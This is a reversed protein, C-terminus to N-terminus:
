PGGHRMGGFRFPVWRHTCSHHVLRVIDPDLVNGIGHELVWGVGDNADGAGTDAAAVQPGVVVSRIHTALLHAMLRDSDDLLDAAIDVFHLGALNDDHREGVRISGAREASISQLRGAHMATKEALAELGSARLGLCQANRLGVAREVWQRDTFVIPKHWGKQREGIHHAGSVVRGHRCPNRGAMAYGDNAVPGYTKAANDGCFPQPGFLDDDHATM